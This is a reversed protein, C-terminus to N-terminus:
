RPDPDMADRDMADLDMVDRDMADRDMVDRDMADGTTHRARVSVVAIAATKMAAATM